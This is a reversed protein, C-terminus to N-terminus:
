EDHSYRERLFSRLEQELERPLTIGQNQAAFEILREVFAEDSISKALILAAARKARHIRTADEFRHDQM